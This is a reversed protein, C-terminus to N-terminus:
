GEQKGLYRNAGYLVAGVAIAGGVVIIPWKFSELADFPRNLTSAATKAAWSVGSKVDSYVTKVAGGAVKAAKGAAKSVEHAAQGVVHAASKFAKKVFSFLGM